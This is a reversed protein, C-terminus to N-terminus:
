NLDDQWPNTWNCKKFLQHMKWFFSLHNLQHVLLLRLLAQGSLTNSYHVSHEMTLHCKSVTGKTISYTIYLCALTLRLAFFIIRRAPGDRRLWWVKASGFWRPERRIPSCMVVEPRWILRVYNSQGWYYDIWADITILGHSTRVQLFPWRM